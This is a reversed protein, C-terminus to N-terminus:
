SQHYFVVIKLYFSDIKHTVLPLLADSTVKKLVLLFTSSEDPSIHMWTILHDNQPIDLSKRSHLDSQLLNLM